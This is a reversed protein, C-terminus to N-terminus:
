QAPMNIFQAVGNVPLPECIQLDGFSPEPHVIQEEVGGGALLSNLMGPRHAIVPQVDAGAPVLLPARDHRRFPRVAVVLANELPQVVVALDDPEEDVLHARELLRAGDLELQRGLDGGIIDGVDRDTCAAIRNRTDSRLTRLSARSPRMRPAALTPASHSIGVGTSTTGPLKDRLPTRNSPELECGDM